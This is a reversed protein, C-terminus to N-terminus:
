RPAAPIRRAVRSLTARCRRHAQDGRGRHHPGARHRGPVDARTAAPGQVGHRGAARRARGSRLGHGRPRGEDRLLAFAAARQPRAGRRDAARRHIRDLSARGLAGDPELSVPLLRAEPRGHERPEVLARPDDDDDRAAALTGRAASARAHQRVDRLRQREPQYDAPHRAIDQASRRPSSARRARTCGTRMAACPTSRATTRSTATRIRGTGARSPTRASARIYSRSRRRSPPTGAPRPLVPRAAGHAADGQVRDHPELPQRRVLVRCRGDDLHPDRQLRAQPDRVAQTRLGLEETIAPNRRIFVQRMFPECSRATEGLMGNSTPVTRWGLVQQGEAQVVQEFREEIRRRVTPNRPLFIIGSGYEGPPPLTFRAKRCVEENFAHPM